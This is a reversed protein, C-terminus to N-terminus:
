ALLAVHMAIVNMVSPDTGIPRPFPCSSCTSARRAPRGPAGSSGHKQLCHAASGARRRARRAASSSQYATMTMIPGFFFLILALHRPQCLGTPFFLTLVLQSPQSTARDSLADPCPNGFSSGTTDISSGGSVKSRKDVSVFTWTDWSRTSCEHTTTCCCTRSQYSRRSPLYLSYLQTSLM